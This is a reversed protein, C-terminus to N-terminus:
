FFKGGAHDFRHKFVQLLGLRFILKRYANVIIDTVATQIPVLRKPNGILGLSELGQKITQTTIARHAGIFVADFDDAFSGVAVRLTIKNVVRFFGTRDRNRM